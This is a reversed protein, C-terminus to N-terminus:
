VKILHKSSAFGTYTVDKYTFQVYLWKTGSVSTYYGYNKVKTGEPITVMISADTGAGNRINLNGKTKYTGSLSSLKSKAAETATKSSSVTASSKIVTPEKPLDKFKLGKTNVVKTFKTDIYFIKEPKYTSLSTVLVYKGNSNKVWGNGKYKGKGVSFHFHYATAGDKGERCIKEKRKFKNGVKIKKLDSDDPHTILMVLYNKTGDAFDVKSTSELWITNIGSTGVGYVRKVVMEDCPCYCYDRDTGSCGEDWPYDKPNGTMNPKHSTTGSYTQTIRLTKCPYIAYNKSM